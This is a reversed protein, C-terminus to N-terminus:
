LWGNSDVNEDQWLSARVVDKEEYLLIRLSPSHYM